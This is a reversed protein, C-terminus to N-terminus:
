DYPYYHDVNFFLTSLVAKIERKEPQFDYGSGKHTAKDPTVSLDIPHFQHAMM